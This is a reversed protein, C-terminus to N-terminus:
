ALEKPLNYSLSIDRLKIYDVKKVQIIQLIGHRQM